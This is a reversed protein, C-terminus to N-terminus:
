PNKLSSGKQALLKGWIDMLILLKYDFLQRTQMEVSSSWRSATLRQFTIIICNNNNNTKFTESSLSFILLSNSLRCHKSNGSLKCITNWHGALPLAWRLGISNQVQKPSPSYFYAQCLPSGQPLLLPCLGKLLFCLWEQHTLSLPVIEVYGKAWCVIFKFSLDTSCHIKQARTTGGQHTSAQEGDAKRM